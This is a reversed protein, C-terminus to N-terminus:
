FSLKICHQGEAYNYELSIENLKCIESVIALGLGTSESSSTNKVFRQFLKESDVTLPKGSNCFTLENSTAIISINGDEVNHKLANNLLNNILIEALVPNINFVLPTNLETTVEIQKLMLLEEILELRSQILKCFDIESKEIFQRNEIKSLLLLGENLKSLRAVTKYAIQVQQQVDPLITEEQLITELKSKIIALPTQIEHSANETFEKLNRFDSQIKGIMEALVNNLQNFEQINSKEFVVENIQGIKFNKLLGITKFFHRWVSKSLRNNVSYLTAVILVFLGIMFSFIIEVMDETEFRSYTIQIKYFHGNIQDIAIIKRCKDYRKDSLNYEITDSFIKGTKCPSVENIQIAQDASTGTFHTNPHRRINDNVKDIRGTLIEDINEDVDFGLKIYMGIGALTFIVLLLLMFRINIYNILKM